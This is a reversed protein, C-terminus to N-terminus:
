KTIDWRSRYGKINLANSRIRQPPQDTGDLHVQGVVATIDDNKGKVVYHEPEALGKVDPNLYVPDDMGSFSYAM